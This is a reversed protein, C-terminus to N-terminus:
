LPSECFYARPNKCLNDRWQGQINGDMSGLMTTCDASGIMNADIDNPDTAAWNTYGAAVATGDVWVFSGELELDTLGLWARSMLPALKGILFANEATDGVVVLDSLLAQCAARADQWTRPTECLYYRHGAYEDATCGMCTGALAAPWEDIGGDCDNDLADCLEVADPHINPDADNCDTSADAYGPPPPGCGPTSMPGGHTDGDGDVYWLTPVCGTTTGDDGTTTTTTNTTTTTADITTTNTTTSALTTTTTTTTGDDGTTAATTTVPDGSTSGAATGTATGGDVFCAALALTAAYPSWPRVPPM